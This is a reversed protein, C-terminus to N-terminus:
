VFRALEGEKKGLWAAAKQRAVRATELNPPNRFTVGQVKLPPVLPFTKESSGQIELEKRLIQHRLKM